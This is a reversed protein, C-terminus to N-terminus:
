GEDADGAEDEPVLEFESVVFRGDVVAGSVRAHRVTNCFGDNAHADGHDDIFSGDVFWAQGDVRIALDCSEGALDFQCQGCAAEVRASSYVGPALTVTADTADTACATILSLLAFSLALRAAHRVM